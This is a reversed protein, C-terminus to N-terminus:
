EKVALLNTYKDPRMDYLNRDLPSGDMYTVYFGFYDQLLDVLAEITTDYRECQSASAEVIVVRTQDLVDLSDKLVAYELGEIDLKVVDPRTNGLIVSLRETEVPLGSVDNLYAASPHGVFRPDARLFASGPNNSVGISVVEFDGGVNAWLNRKLMDAYRPNAEIAIVHAGLSAAMVSFYGVHAGIDVFVDGPGVHREIAQAVNEEWKGTNRVAQTIIQDAPDMILTHGRSTKVEIEGATISCDLRHGNGDGDLIQECVVCTNRVNKMNEITYPYYGMHYLIVSPDLWVKFGLRRAQEGFAYDESLYEANGDAGVVTFCDFMPWMPSVTNAGCLPFLPTGDSNVAEILATIVDRHCAMFGTAPYVIEVPESGAGFMIEQGAFRRCALHGGDKVPYAGCAISRTERALTVVKEAHEPLFVVDDDIMLFVDDTTNQYWNSVAVSRSRSILADGRKITYGWGRDRLMLMCEATEALLGRWACLIVTAKAAVAEQAEIGKDAIVM